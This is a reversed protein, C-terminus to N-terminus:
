KIPKISRLADLATKIFAARERHGKATELDKIAHDIKRGRSTLQPAPPEEPKTIQVMKAAVQRRFHDMDFTPDIKGTTSTEKHGRVTHVSNKTVVVSLVASLLVLANYQRKSWKEGLGDNFAEIGIYLENGDGSAVSGSLRAQGAHNARGAAILYVRGTRGLGIHALPGPLDTRGGTLLRLVAAITWKVTTATHHILVGVPDFGGTYAPRGRKRWGPVVTVKLGYSRLIQPLDDPLREYSM